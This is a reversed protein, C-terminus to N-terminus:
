RASTDSPLAYLESDQSGAGGEPALSRAKNLMPAALEPHHQAEYCMAIIIHPKAYAPDIKIAKEGAEIALDYYGQMYHVAALNCYAIKDDPKLHIAHLLDTIASNTEGQLFLIRGLNHLVSPEYVDALHLFVPNPAPDRRVDHIWTMANEGATYAQDLKGEDCLASMLLIRARMNHPSTKLVDRQMRSQSCYDINRQNTLLIMSFALSALLGVRTVNALTSHGLGRNMFRGVVTVCVLCLPISPLYMRREAVLDAIPVVSSSPLWLLISSALTIALPWKRIMGIGVLVGIALNLIAFPLLEPVPMPLRIYDFCLGFPVFWLHIYHWVIQQQNLWYALPSLIEATFGASERSENPGLLLGALIIMAAVLGGYYAKHSRLAQRLSGSVLTADLMVIILPLTAAVPKSLFAALTALVSTVLLGGRPSSRTNSDGSKFFLWLAVLSFLTSLLEARQVVYTVAETHVPHLAWLLSTAFALWTADRTRAPQVRPRRLILRLLEFLCLATLSHIVINVIHFSLPGPGWLQRNLYFSAETLPRSSHTVANHFTRLKANNVIRPLDDFHYVGFIGNGCAAVVATVLVIRLWWPPQPARCPDVTHPQVTTM